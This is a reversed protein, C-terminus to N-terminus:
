FSGCGSHHKELSVTVSDDFHEGITVLATATISTEIIALLLGLALSHLASTLKPHFHHQLNSDGSFSPPCAGAKCHSRSPSGEQSLLIKAPTLNSPRKPM